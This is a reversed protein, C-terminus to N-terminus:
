LLPPRQKQKKKDKRHNRLDENMAGVPVASNGVLRRGSVQMQISETTPVKPEWQSQAIYITDKRLM